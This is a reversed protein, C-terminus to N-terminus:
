CLSRPRTHACRIQALAPEEGYAELAELLTQIEDLVPSLRCATDAAAVTGSVLAPTFSCALSPAWSLAEVALAAPVHDRLPYLAQQPFHQAHAPDAAPSPGAAAGRRPLYVDGADCADGPVNRRPRPHEVGSFFRALRLTCTPHCHACAASRPWAWRLEVRANCACKLLPIARPVVPAVKAPVSELVDFICAEAVVRDAAAEARLGALLLHFYQHLDLSEIPVTWDVVAEGGERTVRIPLHGLSLGRSFDDAVRQRRSM